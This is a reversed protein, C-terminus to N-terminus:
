IAGFWPALGGLCIQVIEDDDVNISISGFSNCLEQDELHLKTISMDRQQVNKLEQHLQLKRAIRNTAFIKRLNEWAEPWSHFVQLLPRTRLTCRTCM